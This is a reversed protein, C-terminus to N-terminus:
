ELSVSAKKNNNPVTSLLLGHFYNWLWVVKFNIHCFEHFMKILTKM